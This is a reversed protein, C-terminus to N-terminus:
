NGAAAPRRGNFRFPLGPASDIFEQTRYQPSAVLDRTDAVYGVPINLTQAAQYWEYKSRHVTLGSLREVLEPQEAMRGSQTAFREECLVPDFAFLELVRPWDTARYYFALHGDACPLVVPGSEKGRPILSGGAQYYVPGKWELYAVTEVGSVRVRQGRGESGARDRRTLATMVGTFALLGTSYAVQHGGLMLPERDPDGLLALLGGAAQWVLEGGQWDAQPGRDGFDGFEAVVLRPNAAEFAAVAEAWDRLMDEPALLVDCDSLLAAVEDDSLNARRLEKAADLYRSLLDNGYPTGAEDPVIRTVRAGLGVFVKACLGAAVSDGAQVVHLGALAGGPGSM